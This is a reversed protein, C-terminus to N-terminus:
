FILQNSSVMKSVEFGFNISPIGFHDAVKEMAKASNPLNGDQESELFDAKITYIFCTDTNPNSEWIQRIIGEMSWVIKETPTDGDNVAFEVFVLDPLYKLVQDKLRFVGFDSGTGGIAANIESFIAKPFLLKFWDLSYLRWGNQATISGGLYAVKM